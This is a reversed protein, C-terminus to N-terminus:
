NMKELRPNIYAKTLAEPSKANIRELVKGAAGQANTFTNFELEEIDEPTTAQLEAKLAERAEKIGKATAYKLRGNQKRSERQLAKATEEFKREIKNIISNYFIGPGKQNSTKM